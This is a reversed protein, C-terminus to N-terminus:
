KLFIRDAYVTKYTDKYLTFYLTILRESLFGVYRNMYTDEKVGGHQAVADLIPFMWGCLDDLVHWKAIFMNCPLYLNGKFVELATEYTHIDTEKLYQLLYDWDDPIHRQRYNTDIDPYVYTPVPIIADIDNQVMMDAWNNPLIFHRRYHALGAIDHPANKWMWYLATLECYQRNRDSIHDGTNDFIDIGDLRIDTLVTGVQIPTEWAPYIYSTETPNDYISKAVCINVDPIMTTEQDSKTISLQELKVFERGQKAYVKGVYANRLCNDAEVTIPLVTTFGKGKLVEIIHAHYIGKTALLVPANTHLVMDQMLHLVPIQEIREENDEENDVLFALVSLDPFLENVYGMVTKARSQAGFIYICNTEKLITLIDKM